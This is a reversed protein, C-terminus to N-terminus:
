KANEIDQLRCKAANHRNRIIRMEDPTKVKRNVGCSAKLVKQFLVENCLDCITIINNGIAIDFLELSNKRVGGCAECRATSKKNIRMKVAM